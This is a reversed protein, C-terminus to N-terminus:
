VGTEKYLPALILFAHGDDISRSVDIPSPALPSRPALARPSATGSDRYNLSFAVVRFGCVTALEAYALSTAVLDAVRLGTRLSHRTEARHLAAVVVTFLVFAFVISPQWIEVLTLTARTQEADGNDGNRIYYLEWLM